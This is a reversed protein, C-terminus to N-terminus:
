TFVRVMEIRIREEFTIFVFPGVKNSTREFGQSLALVTCNKVQPRKWRDRLSVINTYFSMFYLTNNFRLLLKYDFSCILLSHTIIFGTLVKINLLM